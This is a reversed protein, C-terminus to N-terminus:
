KKEKKEREFQKQQQQQSKENIQEIRNKDHQTTVKIITQYKIYAFFRGRCCKPECMQTYKTLPIWKCSNRTDSLCNKNNQSANKTLTSNRTNSKCMYTYYVDYIYSHCNFQFFSSLFCCGFHQSIYTWYVCNVCGYIIRAWPWIFTSEHVILSFCKNETSIVLWFVLSHGTTVCLADAKFRRMLHYLELFHIRVESCFAVLSLSKRLM